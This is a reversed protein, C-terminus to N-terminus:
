FVGQAREPKAPHPRVVRGFRRVLVGGAERGIWYGGNDGLIAAAMATGIVSTISLRGYAALTAATFLATEGPLPVGLSELAVLVFLIAYGYSELLGAITEHM